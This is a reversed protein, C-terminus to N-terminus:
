HSSNLRTSKRDSYREVRGERVRWEGADAGAVLARAEGLEEDSLCYNVSVRQCEDRNM